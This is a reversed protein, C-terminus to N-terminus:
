RSGDTAESAVFLDETLGAVEGSEDRSKKEKGLCISDRVLGMVNALIQVELSSGKGDAQGRAM